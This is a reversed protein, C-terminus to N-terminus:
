LPDITLVWGASSRTARAFFAPFRELGLRQLELAADEIGSGPAVEEGDVLVSRDGGPAVAVALEQADGIAPLEVLEANRQRAAVSWDSVGRRLARVECPPGLEEEVVATLRRVAAAPLADPIRSAVSGDRLITFALESVTAGELEPLDVLTVLDWERNRPVGSIGVEMWRPTVRPDNIDDISM